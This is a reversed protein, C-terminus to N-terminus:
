TLSCDLLYKPVFSIDDLIPVNCSFLMERSQHGNPILVCDIGLASAVEYDHITDGILIAKEANKRSLYDLGIDIKSKAYIDSLGLLEDFYD